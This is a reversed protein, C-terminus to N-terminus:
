EVPICYAYPRDFIHKFAPDNDLENIQNEFQDEYIALAETEFEANIDRKETEYAVNLAKYFFEVDEFDKADYDIKSVWVIYTM